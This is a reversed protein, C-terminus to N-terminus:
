KQSFWELLLELIAIVLAIIEMWDFGLMEDPFETAVVGMLQQALADKEAESGLIATQALELRSCDREGCLDRIIRRAVWRELCRARRITELAAEAGRRPPLKYNIM